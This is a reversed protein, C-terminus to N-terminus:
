KPIVQWTGLSLTETGASNPYTIVVLIVYNGLTASDASSLQYLISAPTIVVNGQMVAATLNSFVGTGARDPNSQLDTNRIILSFNADSLGSTNITGSDTSLQINWAPLTDGQFWPTIAM